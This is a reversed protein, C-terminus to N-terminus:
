ESLGRKLKELVADKNRHYRVMSLAFRVLFFLLTIVLAYEFRCATLVRYTVVSAIATAILYWGGIYATLRGASLSRFWHEWKASDRHFARNKVASFLLVVALATVKCLLVSGLLIALLILINM